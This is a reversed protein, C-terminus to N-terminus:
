FMNLINLQTLVADFGRLACRRGRSFAQFDFQVEHIYQLMAKLMQLLLHWMFGCVLSHWMVQQHWGPVTLITPFSIKRINEM